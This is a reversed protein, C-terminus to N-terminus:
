VYFVFYSVMGFMLSVLWFLVTFDMIRKRRSCATINSPNQAWAGVLFTGLILAITGPIVHIWTTQVGLDSTPTTFYEYDAYFSPVMVALLSAIHLIVAIAMLGGHIKFKM